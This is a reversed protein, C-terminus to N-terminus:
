PLVEHSFSTSTEFLQLMKRKSFRYYNRMKSTCGAHTAKYHQTRSFHGSLRGSILGFFQELGGDTKCMGPPNM